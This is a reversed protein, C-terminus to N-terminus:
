DGLLEVFKKKDTWLSGTELPSVPNLNRGFGHICRKKWTKMVAVSAVLYYM